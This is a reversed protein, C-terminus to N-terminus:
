ARSSMLWSTASVACARRTPQRRVHRNPRVNKGEAMSTLSLEASESLGGADTRAEGGGGDSSHARSEVRAARATASARAQVHNCRVAASRRPRM